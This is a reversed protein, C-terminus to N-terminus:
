TPESRIESFNMQNLMVTARPFVKWKDELQPPISPIGIYFNDSRGDGHNVTVVHRRSPCYACGTLTELLAQVQAMMNTTCMSIYSFLLIEGTCCLMFLDFANPTTYLVNAQLYATIFM